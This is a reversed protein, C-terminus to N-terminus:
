NDMWTSGVKGLPAGPQLLSSSNRKHKRHTEQESREARIANPGPSDPKSEITTESQKRPTKESDPLGVTGCLVAEQQQNRRQSRQKM